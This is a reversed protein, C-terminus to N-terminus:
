TPGDRRRFVGPFISVLPIIKAPSPRLLVTPYHKEVRWLMGETDDVILRVRSVSVTM